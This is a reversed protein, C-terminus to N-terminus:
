IGKQKKAKAKKPQAVKNVEAYIANPKQVVAYESSTSTKNQSEFDPGASQYLVNKKLGDSQSPEYLINDKLGDDESESSTRLKTSPTASEKRKKLVCVIALLVIILGILSGAVGGIIAGTSSGADSSKTLEILVETFNSRKMATNEAYM